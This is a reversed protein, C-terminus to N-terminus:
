LHTWMLLGPGPDLEENSAASLMRVSASESVRSERCGGAERALAKRDGELDEGREGRVLQHKWPEGNKESGDEGMM